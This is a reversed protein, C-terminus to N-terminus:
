RYEFLLDYQYRNEYTRTDEGKKTVIGKYEQTYEYTRTDSGGKTVTGGYRWIRTDVAPKTVTGQYRYVRTDVAPKTVYGEYRYVRTDVAPKTVTGQYYYVPTQTEPKTVMGGYYSWCTYGLGPQNRDIYSCATCNGNVCTPYLEGSYGGSNYKLPYPPYKSENLGKYYTHTITVHKTHSPSTEYHSLYRSLTGSYGGSNYYSSTQGTVFKSDGPTYSGSHLYQSLSGSYGGSNYYSSTQNTVWKRDSPTYSGSHVYQSLTGRYGESDSYNASTQATVFKNQPPTYTGSHVYRELTGKFGESDSYNPSTQNGVVKTEGPILEGGTQKTKMEGTKTLTGVFGDKNYPISNPIESSRTSIVKDTVTKTEDAKLNGGTQVREKVSGGSARITVRNGDVKVVQVSGTNTTVRLLQKMNPIIFTQEQTSNGSITTKATFTKLEGGDTNGGNNGGSGSWGPPNVGNRKAIFAKNTSEITRDKYVSKYTYKFNVYVTDGYNMIGNVAQGFQDKFTIVYGKPKYDNVVSKVRDSVGADEQVLETIEKTVKAFSNQHLSDIGFMLLAPVILGIFFLAGFVASKMQSM